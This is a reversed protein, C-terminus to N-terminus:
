SPSYMYVRPPNMNIYPLVLVINYLPFFFFLSLLSNFLWSYIYIHTSLFFFFFLDRQEWSFGAVHSPVQKTTGWIDIVRLLQDASFM